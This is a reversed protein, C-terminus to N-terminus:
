ETGDPPKLRAKMAEWYTEVAEAAEGATPKYGANPTLPSVRRHKPYSGAWRWLGKTPGASEYFIRGAYEENDYASYDEHRKGDIGTEDGWTRRWDYKKQWDAM